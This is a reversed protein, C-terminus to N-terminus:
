QRFDMPGPTQLHARYINDSGSAEAIADVHVIYSGYPLTAGFPITPSVTRPNLTFRQYGLAFAKGIDNVSVVIFTVDVAQETHNSVLVQGWIGGNTIQPPQKWEVTLPAIVKVGLAREVQEPHAASDSVMVTFQFEGASTPTGLLVGSKGDLVLGSPLTGGSLQWRYPAIGGRATLQFRYQKGALAAPVSETLITLPQRKQGDAHLASLSAVVLLLARCVSKSPM